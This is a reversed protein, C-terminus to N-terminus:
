VNQLGRVYPRVGVISRVRHVVANQEALVHVGEKVTAVNSYRGLIADFDAASDFFFKFISM